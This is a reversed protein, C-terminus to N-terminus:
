FTRNMECLVLYTKYPNAAGDFLPISSILGSFTHEDGRLIFGVSRDANLAVQAELAERFEKPSKAAHFRKLLPTPVLYSPLVEMVAQKAAKFGEDKLMLQYIGLKVQSFNTARNYADAEQYTYGQNKLESGILKALKQPFILSAEVSRDWLIIEHDGCVKNDETYFTLDKTERGKEYYTNSTLQMYSLASAFVLAPFGRKVHWGPAPLSLPILSLSNVKQSNQRYNRLAKTQRENDPDDRLIPSWIASIEELQEHSVQAQVNSLM